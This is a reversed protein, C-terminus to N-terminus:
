GRTKCSRGGIIRRGKRSAEGAKEGEEGVGTEEAASSAANPEGPSIIALAHIIQRTFKNSLKTRPLFYIRDPPKGSAKRPTFKSKGPKSFLSFGFGSSGSSTDPPLCGCVSYLVGFRAMWAEATKDYANFLAGQSVKDDHDPILMPVVFTGPTSAMLDLFHHYRVVYRTLTDRDEEWRAQETFGLNVMAETYYGMASEEEGVDWDEYLGGGSEDAVWNTKGWIEAPSPATTERLSLVTATLIESWQTEAPVGAHYDLITNREILTSDAITAFAGSAENPNGMAKAHLVLFLTLSPM